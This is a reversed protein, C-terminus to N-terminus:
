PTISVEEYQKGASILADERNMELAERLAIRLDRVLQAKTRAQANVGAIEQIWGIWWKGDRKIVATYPIRDM